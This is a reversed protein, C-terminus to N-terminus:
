LHEVERGRQIQAQLVCASAQPRPGLEGSTNGGRHVRWRQRSCNAHLKRFQDTHLTRSKTTGREMSEPVQEQGFCLALGRDIHIRASIWDRSPAYFAYGTSANWDVDELMM